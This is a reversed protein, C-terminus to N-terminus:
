GQLGQMDLGRYIFCRGQVCATASVEEKGHHIEQLPPTALPANPTSSTTTKPFWLHQRTSRSSSLSKTVQRHSFPFGPCPPSPYKIYENLNAAKAQSVKCPDLRNHRNAHQRAMRTADECDQGFCLLLCLHLLNDLTEGEQLTTLSADRAMGDKTAPMAKFNGSFL